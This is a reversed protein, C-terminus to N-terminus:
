RRALFNKKANAIFKDPDVKLKVAKDRLVVLQENSFVNDKVDVGGSGGDGGGISTEPRNKLALKLEANEKIIKKTEDEKLRNQTEIEKDLLALKVQEAVSLEADGLFDADGPLKGLRKLAVAKYNDREKTLGEIVRDKEAIPDVEITSDVIVEAGEKKEEM